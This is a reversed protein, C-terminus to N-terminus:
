RRRLKPDFIDRIGDGVLNFALATFLIALGPFLAQWPYLTLYYQGRSIMLGWEAVGAPPGFGIFALGAATLLVGGTDLTAQVILPQFTNPLIHALLIRGDSAGVSRAAEVYLKEREILVQGRVLRAYVPWWTVMLALSITEFSRGGLAMVIAMALILGPFAFFIDTVRMLLEDVKGGYYGAVAGLISGFILAVLVITVSIRLDTQAAWIIRSFIDGGVDDAGWHHIPYWHNYQFIVSLALNWEDTKATANILLEWTYTEEQIPLDFTKRLTDNKTAWDLRNALRESENMSNYQSLSLTYLTFKLTVVVSDNGTDRVRASVYLSPAKEILVLENPTVTFEGVTINPVSSVDFSPLSRLSQSTYKAENSATGPPLNADAAVREEPGYPTIFPAAVALTVFSALIVIGLVVLPSKKVLHLTYRMEKLRPGLDERFEPYWVTKISPPLIYCAIVALGLVALVLGLPGTTVLIGVSLLNLQFASAYAGTDSKLIGRANGINLISLFVLLLGQLPWGIFITPISAANKFLFISISFVLAAGASTVVALLFVTQLLGVIKSVDLSQTAGHEQTNSSTGM